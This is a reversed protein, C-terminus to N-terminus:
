RALIVPHNLRPSSRIFARASLTPPMIVPLKWVSTKMASDLLTAQSPAPVRRDCSIPVTWGSALRTVARRGLTVAIAIRV